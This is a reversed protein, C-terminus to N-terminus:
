ELVALIEDQAVIKFEENNIEVKEGGWGKLLVRDGPKVDMTSRKGDALVKGPGVSIVEGEAKKENKEPLVLGFSTVEDAKKQKVLVNDGLPKINM